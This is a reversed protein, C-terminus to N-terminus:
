SGPMLAPTDYIKARNACRSPIIPEDIGVVHTDPLIMLGGDGWAVFHRPREKDKLIGDCDLTFTYDVMERCLCYPCRDGKSKPQGHSFLAVHYVGCNNCVGKVPYCPIHPLAARLDVIFIPLVM